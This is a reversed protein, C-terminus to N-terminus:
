EIGYLPGLRRRLHALFPEQSLPRGTVREILDTSSCTRGVRHIKERLWDLLPRFECRAFQEDLDGLDNGAQEFLQAANLHGLTYTPFYGFLGASWHVDQLVGDSDTPSQVGLYKQYKENWAGPLDAVALSGELLAIELEFRVIVHLSYTAQDADVRILSPRVGNIAFYFSEADVDRLAEPFAGQAAPFFYRWFGRSRGVFNEWMLSQSEHIGLSLYTGSPLGHREKRLGQEYLGHGSEHLTGFFANPFLRESYRTTLRCDNPAIGSCFPHASVDIRGRDFDFGIRKAAFISFQRQAEIPYLRRLIETPAERGSEVVSRVLPALADRLAAFLTTMEAATAGPEYDELLADYISEGGVRHNAAGGGLAQAEERKRAVIRELVPRFSAFDNARRALAWVQQGEVTLRALESVLAEPLKRRREYERQMERVDAAADPDVSSLDAGHLSQLWEGVKPATRRRHIERALYALQEGRYDAGGPPLNTREDWALTEAVTELLATERYYECVTAYLNDSM